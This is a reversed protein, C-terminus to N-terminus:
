MPVDDDYQIKSTYAEKPIGQTQPEITEEQETFEDNQDSNFEVDAERLDKFFEDSNGITPFDVFGPKIIGIANLYTVICVKQFTNKKAIGSVVVLDGNKCFNNKTLEEIDIKKEKNTYLSMYSILGSMGVCWKYTSPLNKILSKYSEPIKRHTTPINDPFNSLVASLKKSNKTDLCLLTRFKKGNQPTDEIKIYSLVGQLIFSHMEPQKPKTSM